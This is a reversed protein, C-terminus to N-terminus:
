GGGEHEARPVYVAFCAGGTSSELVLAGGVSKAAEAANPLGLGTGEERTSFFPLFVSERFHDPIGPGDDRVRVRIYLQAPDEAGPQDKTFTINSFALGNLVRSIEGM